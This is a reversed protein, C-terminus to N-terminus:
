DETKIVEEYLNLHFVNHYDGDYYGKLSLTRGGGKTEPFYNITYYEITLDKNDLLEKLIKDFENDRNEKNVYFKIRDFEFEIDRRLGYLIM